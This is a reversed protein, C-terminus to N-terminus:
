FLFTLFCVVNIPTGANEFLRQNKGENKCMEYRDMCKNKALREGSLPAAEEPILMKQNPKRVNFKLPKDEQGDVEEPYLNERVGHRTVFFAHGVFSNLKTEGGYAEVTAVYVGYRGDDWYVDARYESENVVDVSIEKSSDFTKRRGTEDDIYSQLNGTGKEGDDSVAASVKGVFVSCSMILIMALVLLLAQRRSSNSCSIM